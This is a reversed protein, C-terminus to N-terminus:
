RVYHLRTPYELADPLVTNQFASNAQAMDTDVSRDPQYDIVVYMEDKPNYYCDFVARATYNAGDRGYRVCHFAEIVIM